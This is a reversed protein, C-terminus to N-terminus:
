FFVNTNTSNNILLGTKKLLLEEKPLDLVLPTLKQTKMLIEHLKGMICKNKDGVTFFYKFQVFLAILKNINFLDCM